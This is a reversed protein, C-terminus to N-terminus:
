ECQIFEFKEPLESGPAPKTRNRDETLGCGGHNTRGKM